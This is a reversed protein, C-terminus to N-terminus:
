SKVANKFNLKDAKEKQCDIDDKACEIKASKNHNGSCGGAIASLGNMSFFSSLCAFAVLPIFKKM